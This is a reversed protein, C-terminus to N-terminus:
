IGSAGGRAAWWENHVTRAAQPGGRTNSEAPEEASVEIEGRLDQVDRM